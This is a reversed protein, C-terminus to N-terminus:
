KDNCQTHKTLLVNIAITEIIQTITHKINMCKDFIVVPAIITGTIFLNNKKPRLTWLQLKQITSIDLTTFKAFYFTFFSEYCEYFITIHAPDGIYHVQHILFQSKPM